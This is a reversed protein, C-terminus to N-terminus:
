TRPNTRHRLCVIDTVDAFFEPPIMRSTHTTRIISMMEHKEIGQVCVYFPM